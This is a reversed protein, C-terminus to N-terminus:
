RSLYLDEIAQDAVILQNDIGTRTTARILNEDDVGVDTESYLAQYRWLGGEPDDLWIDLTWSQILETNGQEGPFSEELWSRAVFSWHGNDEEGVSFWRFDKKLDFRARLIANARLVDNETILTDCSRDPFCSPDTPDIFFRDYEEATNEAPTQDAETMLRAHLEVGYASKKAVAVNVTNSLVTDPPATLGEIDEPQLDTQEFSRESREGEPDLQSIHEEWLAWMGEAMVAPDTNDWERFLFRNLESLDEPAEPPSCGAAFLAILLAAARM